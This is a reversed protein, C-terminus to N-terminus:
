KDVQATIDDCSFGTQIFSATLTFEQEDLMTFIPKEQTNKITVLLQLASTFQTNRLSPDCAFYADNSTEIPYKVVFAIGFWFDYIILVIIAFSILGGFWVEGNGILDSHRFFCELRYFHKKGTPLYYLIGMIVLIIFAIALTILAWFFPSIVLCRRPSTELSFTNQMLIDDFSTSGSSKPYAYAQSPSQFSVNNIDSISGLPCFSDSLCATCEIMPYTVNAGNSSNSSIGKSILLFSFSTKFYPFSKKRNASSKTMTPCITCPTTGRISKYTGAPCTQPAQQDANIDDTGTYYGAETSPVLVVVGDSTLIAFQHDYTKTLRLFTPPTKSWQALSQQNNPYVHLAETSSVNVIFVRSQAWPLTSSDSLLLGAQIGDDDLWTTSRAPHDLTKIYTLNTSNFSFLYATSLQPVGILVQQTTDHISVSMVYDFQYSTADRGRVFKQKDSVLTYNSVLTMNYPPNLRVLYVAPLTKEIDTQYYGAVIAMAIGDATEGIDLAHPSLIISSFVNSCTLNHVYSNVIDYIFIFNSLFGYAYKGDLDVQLTSMESPAGNWIKVDHEGDNKDLMRKCTSDSSGSINERSFTFLGLNQTFGDTTNTRLYVFSLQSSNQRRSTAVNIVFENSPTYSYGCAYQMGFPAMSVVFRAGDNQALVVFHDTSAMLTGYADYDHTNSYTISYVISLYNTSIFIVLVYHRCLLWYM